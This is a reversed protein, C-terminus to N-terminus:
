KAKAPEVKGANGADTSEPKGASEATGAPEPKATDPKDPSSTVSKEAAARAAAERRDWLAALEDRQAALRRELNQNQMFMMLEMEHNRPRREILRTMTVADPIAFALKEGDISQFWCEGGEVIIAFDESSGVFELVDRGVVRALFTMEGNGNVFWLRVADPANVDLRVRRMAGGLMNLAKGDEVKQWSAMNQIRQM